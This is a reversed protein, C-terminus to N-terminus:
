QINQQNIIRTCNTLYFYACLIKKEIKRDLTEPCKNFCLYMPVAHNIHMNTDCYQVINSIGHLLEFLLEETVLLFADRSSHTLSRPSHAGVTSSCTLNWERRGLASVQPLLPCPTVLVPCSLVAFCLETQNTHIDTSACQNITRDFKADAGHIWCDLSAAHIHLGAVDRYFNHSAMM